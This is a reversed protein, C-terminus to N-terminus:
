EYISSADGTRYNELRNEAFKIQQVIEKHNGRLLFKDDYRNGNYNYSFQGRLSQRVPSHNQSPEPEPEREREPTPIIPTETRPPPNFKNPDNNPDQSKQVLDGLHKFLQGLPGLAAAGGDTIADGVGTEKVAEGILQFYEPPLEKILRINANVKIKELEVMEDMVKHQLNRYFDLANEQMMKETITGSMATMLNALGPLDSAHNNFEKNKMRDVWRKGFQWMIGASLMMSASQATMFPIVVSTPMPGFGQVSPLAGLAAVPNVM